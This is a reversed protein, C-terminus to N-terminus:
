EGVGLVHQRCPYSSCHGSSLGSPWLYVSRSKNRLTILWIATWRSSAALCILQCSSAVSRRYRCTCAFSPPQCQVKAVTIIYLPRYTKSTQPRCTPIESVPAAIRSNHRGSGMFCATKLHRTCRAPRGRPAGHRSRALLSKCTSCASSLLAM